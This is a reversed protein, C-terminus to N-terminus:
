LTGYKPQNAYPYLNQIMGADYKMLSQYLEPFSVELGEPLEAFCVFITIVTSRFIQFVSNNILDSIIFVVTSFALDRTLAYAIASMVLDSLLTTMWVAQSVLCDNFFAVFLCRQTLQWTVKAAELYNCGYIGVHVFAYENFYSLLFDTFDLICLLICNMFSYDDLESSTVTAIFYIFDMLATFLSGFCISGFNDFFARRLMKPIPSSVVKSSGSFYWTAIVGSCIVHIAYLLVQTTWFLSTIVLLFYWIDHPNYIGALLRLSPPVMLCLMFLTFAISLLAIGLSIIILSYYRQIVRSAIAILCVSFDIRSKILYLWLLPLVTMFGFLLSMMVYNNMYFIFAVAAFLFTYVWSSILILARPMYCLLKLDLMAIALSLGFFLMTMLVWRSTVSERWIDQVVTRTNRNGRTPNMLGVNPEVSGVTNPKPQGYNFFGGMSTGDVGTPDGWGWSLPLVGFLSQHNNTNNFILGLERIRQSILMAMTEDMAFDPLESAGQVLVVAMLMLFLFAMWGDQCGRRRFRWLENNSRYGEVSRFPSEKDMEKCLFHPITEQNEDREGQNVSNTFVVVGAATGRDPLQRLPSTSEADNEISVYLPLGSGLRAEYPDFHRESVLIPPHGPYPGRFATSDEAGSM